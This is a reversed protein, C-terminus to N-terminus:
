SAAKGRALRSVVAFVLWLVGSIGLWWALAEHGTMEGDYNTLAMVFLIAGIFCSAVIQNFIGAATELINSMANM